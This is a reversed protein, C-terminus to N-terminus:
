EKNREEFFWSCNRRLHRFMEWLDHSLNEAEKKNGMNMYLSLTEKEIMLNTPTVSDEIHEILERLRKKYSEREEDVLEASCAPCLDKMVPALKGHEPCTYYTYLHTENGEKNMGTRASMKRGCEPCFPLRHHFNPSKGCAKCLPM